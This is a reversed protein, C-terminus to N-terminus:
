GMRSGRDVSYFSVALLAVAFCIGTGVKEVEVPVDRMVIQMMECDASRQSGVKLLFTSSVLFLLM